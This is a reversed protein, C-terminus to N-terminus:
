RRASDVRRTRAVTFPEPSPGGPLFRRGRFRSGCGTGACEVLTMYFGPAVRPITFRLSRSATSKQAREVRLRGLLLLRRDRPSFIEAATTLPALFVRLVSKPKVRTDSSDTRVRVTMGPTGVSRSFRLWIASGSGALVEFADSATILTGDPGPLCTDCFATLRYIGPLTRPVFFALATPALLESGKLIGLPIFRPDRPPAPMTVPSTPALTDPTFFVPLRPCCGNAHVVDGARGSARDLDLRVAARAYGPVGAAVAAASLAVCTALKPVSTM